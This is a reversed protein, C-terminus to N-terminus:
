ATPTWVHHYGPYWGGDCRPGVVVTFIHEKIETDNQLLAMLQEKKHDWIPSGSHWFAFASAIAHYMAALGDM